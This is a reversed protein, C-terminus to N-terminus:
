PEFRVHRRNLDLLSQRHRNSPAPQFRFPNTTNSSDRAPGRQRPAPMGADIKIRCRLRLAIDSRMPHFRHLIQTAPVSFAGVVPM